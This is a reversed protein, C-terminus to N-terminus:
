NTAVYSVLGGCGDGLVLPEGLGVSTQLVMKTNRVMIVIAEPLLYLLEPHLGAPGMWVGVRAVPVRMRLVRLGHVAAVFLVRMGRPM